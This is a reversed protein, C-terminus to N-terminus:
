YGVYRPHSVHNLVTVLREPDQRRFALNFTVYSSSNFALNSLTQRAPNSGVFLEQQPHELGPVVM